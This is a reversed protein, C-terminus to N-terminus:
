VRVFHFNHHVPRATQRVPFKRSLDRPPRRFTPARPAPPLPVAPPTSYTRVIFIAGQYYGVDTTATSEWSYDPQATTIYSGGIM